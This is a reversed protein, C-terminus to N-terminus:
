CRPLRKAISKDFKKLDNIVYVRKAWAYNNKLRSLILRKGTNSKFDPVTILFLAEMM